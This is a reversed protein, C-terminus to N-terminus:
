PQILRYVFLRSPTDEPLLYLRGDRVDMGENTFPVGRDTEGAELRQLPLLTEPDLWVVAHEKSGRPAVGGAVLTGARLKCDQYRLPSPNDRKRILKGKFDWEYIQRADWNAGILRDFGVAVCGIHDAVEFTSVVELTKKSRQEIVSRGGPKMGALPIWLSDFDRDFGGPHIMEERGLVVSRLRKGSALDFSTLHGRGAAREVNTVYLAGDEVVVGQVHHTEGELLVVREPPPLPAALLLAWSLTAIM